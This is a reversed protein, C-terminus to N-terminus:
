EHFDTDREYVLHPVLQPDETFRLKKMMYVDFTNNKRSSERVFCNETAPYKLIVESQRLAGSIILTM